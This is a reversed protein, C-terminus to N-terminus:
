LYYTVEYDFHLEQPSYKVVFNRNTIDIVISKTELTDMSTTKQCGKLHHIGIEFKQNHSLHVTTSYDM